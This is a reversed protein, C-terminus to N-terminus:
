FPLQGEFNLHKEFYDVIKFKYEKSPMIDVLKQIIHATSQSITPGENHNTQILDAIDIETDILELNPHPTLDLKISNKFEEFPKYIQENYDSNIGNFYFDSIVDQLSELHFGKEKMSHLVVVFFWETYDDMFTEPSEEPMDMLNALTLDSHVRNLIDMPKISIGQAYKCISVWLTQFFRVNVESTEGLLLDDIRDYPTFYFSTPILQFKNLEKKRSM